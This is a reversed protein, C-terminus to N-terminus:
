VESCWEERGVYRRLIRACCYPDYVRMQIPEVHCVSAGQEKREGGLSHCDEDRRWFELRIGSKALRILLGLVNYIVGEITPEISEEDVRFWIRKSHKRSVNPGM